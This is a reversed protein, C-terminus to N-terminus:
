KLDELTYVGRYRTRHLPRVYHHTFRGRRGQAFYVLDIKKKLACAAHFFVSDPVCIGAAGELLSFQVGIPIEDYAFTKGVEIVTDLGKYKKLWAAGYGEPLDKRSVGTHTHVFGYPECPRYAKAAEIDAPTIFVETRKNTLEVQLASATAKIKHARRPHQVLVVEDYGTADGVGRCYAEVYTCGTTFSRYGEWPDETYVLEDVYPCADFLKASRFRELTAFGVFYGAQKLERLAPTALICDGLGHPYIILVKSRSIPIDLASSTRVTGAPQRLIVIGVAGEETETFDTLGVRQMGAAELPDDGIAIRSEKQQPRIFRLKDRLSNFDFEPSGPCYSSDGLSYGMQQAVQYFNMRQGRRRRKEPFYFDVIHMQMGGGGLLSQLYQLLELRLPDMIHEFVSCSMIADFGDEKLNRVDDVFYHVDPYHTGTDCNGICGWSDDDVGWVEHGRRAIYQPLPSLFCGFDMIKLHKKGLRASVQELWQLAFPYEWVKNDKFWYRGGIAGQRVKPTNYTHIVERGIEELEDALDKTDLFQDRDEWVIM